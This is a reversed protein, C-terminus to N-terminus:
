RRNDSDCQKDTSKWDKWNIEEWRKEEEERSIRRPRRKSGKSM